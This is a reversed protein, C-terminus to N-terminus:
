DRGSIDPLGIDTSSINKTGSMVPVKMEQSNGSHRKPFNKMVRKIIQLM